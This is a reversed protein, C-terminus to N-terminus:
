PLRKFLRFRESRDSIRRGEWIYEWRDTKVELASAPDPNDQVLLWGCEEARLNKRLFADKRVQLGGFYVFSARQALGLNRTAVCDTNEGIALALSKAVNQYTKGYNIYPLWLTMLLLWVLTTGGASLVMARWVARPHTKVRWTVLGIWVGTALLAVAVEMPVTVPTFGPALKSFNRSIQAPVGFTMASYGLWILLSASTFVTLAFWDILSILARRLTALGLAGLLSLPAILPFLESEQNDSLFGLSLVIGAVAALPIRLGASDMKHRHHWVAWVSLPWLPWLFWVGTKLDSPLESTLHNLSPGSFQNFNWEWWHQLWQDGYPMNTVWVSWAAWGVGLVIFARALRHGLGFRLSPHAMSGILLAAVVWLGHVWGRALVTVLMGAGLGWGATIPRDLSRVAALLILAIGLLEGVEAVTQHSRLLLGLTALLCLVSADAVTRAYELRGPALGLPDPPQLEPRKALRFATEWITWALLVLWVAYGLRIADDLWRPSGGTEHWVKGFLAGVWLTLPGEEAIAVGAINPTAWHQVSGTAMTIAQGFGIADESKWPDRGLLGPLAYVAVLLWLLWGPLRQLASSPRKDQM